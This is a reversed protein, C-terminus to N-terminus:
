IVLSAWEPMHSNTIHEILIKNEFKDFFIAWKTRNGGKIKIYYKGFFRYQKPTDFHRIKKLDNTIQDVIRVVYDEADALFSFYEDKYLIIVLEDLYIKVNESFIIEQEVL